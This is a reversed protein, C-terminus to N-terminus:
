WMWAGRRLLCGVACLRPRIQGGGDRRRDGRDLRHRPRDALRYYFRLCHLRCCWAATVGDLARRGDDLRRPDPETRRRPGGQATNLVIPFSRRRAFILFIAGVDRIGFVAISFPLWATIPIPGCCVPHHSDLAGASIRNGASRLHRRSCRGPHRLSFGQRRTRGFVACQRALTGSYPNLGSAPRGLRGSAGPEGSGILRRCVRRRVALGGGRGALQWIVVVALPLVIALVARRVGRGALLSVGTWARSLTASM